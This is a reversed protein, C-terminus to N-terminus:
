SILYAVHQLQLLVIEEGTSCYLDDNLSEWIKSRLFIKWKPTNSIGVVEFM